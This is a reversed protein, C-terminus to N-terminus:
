LPYPREMETFSTIDHVRPSQLPRSLNNVLAGLEPTQTNREGGGARGWKSEKGEQGGREEEGGWVRPHSVTFDSVNLSRYYLM